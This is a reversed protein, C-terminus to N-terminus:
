KGGKVSSVGTLAIRYMLFFLFTVFFLAILFPFIYQSLEMGVIQFHGLTDASAIILDQENIVSTDPQWEGKVM